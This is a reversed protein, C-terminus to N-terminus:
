VRRYSYSPSYSSWSNALGFSMDPRNQGHRAQSKTDAPKSPVPDEPPAIRRPPADSIKDVLGSLALQPVNGFQEEERQAVPALSDTQNAIQAPPALEGDPKQTPAQTAPPEDLLGATVPRQDLKQDPNQAVEQRQQEVRQLDQSVQQVVPQPQSPQVLPEGEQQQPTQQPQPPAEQPPQEEAPRAQAPAARSQMMPRQGMSRRRMLAGILPRRAMGGAVSRALGRGLLGGLLGLM